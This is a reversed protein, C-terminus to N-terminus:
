RRLLISRMRFSCSLHNPSSLGLIFASSPQAAQLQKLAGRMVQQKDVQILGGTRDPVLPGDHRRAEAIERWCINGRIAQRTPCALIPKWTMGGVPPTQINTRDLVIPWSITMPFSMWMVTTATLSLVHPNADAGGFLDHHVTLLNVFFAITLKQGLGRDTCDARYGPSPEGQRLPPQYSQCSFNLWQSAAAGPGAKTSVEM